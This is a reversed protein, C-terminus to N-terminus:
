KKIKTITNTGGESIFEFSVRDGVQLGNVLTSDQVSFPMNMAPWKLEPIPDHFIRVVTKDTSISKIKGSAHISSDQNHEVGMSAYSHEQASLGSSLMLVLINLWVMKKMVCM